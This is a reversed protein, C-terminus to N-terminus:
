KVQALAEEVGKLYAPIKITVGSVADTHGEEDSLTVKSLDFDNEIIFKQLTDMQENWTASEDKMVYNGAEVAERKSTGDEQKVDIKVDVPKGEEFTVTTIVMDKKDESYLTEVTKEGTFATTEEVAPASTEPAKEEEKPTSSCGVLSLTVLSACLGLAIKRKM